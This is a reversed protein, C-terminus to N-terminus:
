HVRPGEMGLPVRLLRVRITAARGPSRHPCLLIAHGRRADVCADPVARLGHGTQPSEVHRREHHPHLHQPLPEDQREGDDREGACRWPLRLRRHVLLLPRLRAHQRRGPVGYGHHQAGQREQRRGGRVAHQHAVCLLGPQPTRFWDRTHPRLAADHWRHRVHALLQRRLRGATWLDLPRM